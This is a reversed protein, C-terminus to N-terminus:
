HQEQGKVQFKVLEAQTHPHTTSSALAVTAVDSNIYVQVEVRFSILCDHM